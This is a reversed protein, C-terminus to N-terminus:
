QEDFLFLNEDKDICDDFRGDNTLGNDAEIKFLLSLNGSAGLLFESINEKELLEKDTEERKRGEEEGLFPYFAKGLQEGLEKSKLASM